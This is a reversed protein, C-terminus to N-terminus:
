INTPPKKPKKKSLVMGPLNLSFPTYILVRLVLVVRYVIKREENKLPASLFTSKDPFPLFMSLNRFRRGIIEVLKRQADCGEQGGVGPNTKERETWPLTFVGILAAHNLALRIFIQTISTFTSTITMCM